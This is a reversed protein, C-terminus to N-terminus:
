PNKTNQRHETEELIPAPERPVDRAHEYFYTRGVCLRNLAEKLSIQKSRWLRVVPVFEEPVPKRSRGFRVGKAKAAAIGAAQRAHINEREIQAVYSLIQLVIDAVFTGTLDRERQRTDLLPMDLVVIDAGIEKTIRRWQEIIEQYNRGLRDISLIFLSDGARLRHVLREYEKRCFNKGSQKEVFIDQVRLGNDILANIQRDLRQEKTSVRAYGYQRNHM